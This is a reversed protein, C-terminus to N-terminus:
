QPQIRFEIGAEVLGRKSLEDAISNEDRPIWTLTINPFKKLLKQAKRAIPVYFGGKIQWKKGYRPDISNQYIVLGSDGFIEIKEKNLKMSILKELICTFASYEAVNNSTERERGKKPVFLKAEEWVRDEDIFIVAGYSAYGGPNVPECAGDFFCKIKM